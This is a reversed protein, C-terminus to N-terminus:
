DEETPLEAEAFRKLWTLYALAEATARRYADSNSNLVWVMLDRGKEDPAVQTMTWDSLHHFLEGHAQADASRKQPAENIKAKSLLFALTQGLGNTLVLMPVRRALSGYKKKFDDPRATVSQVDEWAKKARKQELTQQLSENM